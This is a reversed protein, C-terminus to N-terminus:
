KTEEAGEVPTEVELTEEGDAPAAKVSVDTVLDGLDALAIEEYGKKRWKKWRESDAGPIPYPGYRSPDYGEGFKMQPTGAFYVNAATYTGDVDNLVIISMAAGSFKSEDMAKALVRTGKLPVGAVGFKARLEKSVRTTTPFM